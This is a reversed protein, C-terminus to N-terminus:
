SKDIIIKVSQIAGKIRPIFEERREVKSYFKSSMVNVAYFEIEGIELSYFVSYMQKKYIGTVLFGTYPVEISKITDDISKVNNICYDRVKKLDDLTINNM